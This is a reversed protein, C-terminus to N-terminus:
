AGLAHLAQRRQSQHPCSVRAQRPPQESMAHWWPQAEPAKWCLAATQRFGQRPRSHVPWPRAGSAASASTRM